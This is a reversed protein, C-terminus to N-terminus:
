PSANKKKKKVDVVPCLKVAHRSHTFKELEVSDAVAKTIDKLAKEFLNKFVRIALQIEKSKPRYPSLIVRQYERQKACETFVRNVFHPGIYTVLVDPICHQSFQVKGFKIIATSTIGTVPRVEVYDSYYDVQGIYLRHVTPHVPWGGTSEM